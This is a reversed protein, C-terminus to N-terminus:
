RLLGENPEVEVRGSKGAKWMGTDRAVEETRASGALRTEVLVGMESGNVGARRLLGCMGPRLLGIVRWRWVRGMIREALARRGARVSVCCGV